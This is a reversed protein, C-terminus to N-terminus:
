ISKREENNKVKSPKIERPIGYREILWDRKYTEFQKETPVKDICFKIYNAEEREKKLREREAKRENELRETTGDIVHIIKYCEDIYYQYDILYDEISKEEYKNFIVIKKNSEYETSTLHDVGDKEKYTCKRFYVGSDSLYYRNNKQQKVLNIENGDKDKEFTEAWWKGVTNGTKCFEFIDNCERVTKEVPINELFYKNVATAVIGQSFSKHWEDDKRM